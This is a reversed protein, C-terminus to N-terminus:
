CICPCCPCSPLTRGAVQRSAVSLTANLTM